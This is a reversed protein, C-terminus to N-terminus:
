RPQNVPKMGRKTLEQQGTGAKEVQVLADMYVSNAPDLRDAERFMKFADEYQGERMKSVGINYHAAAIEKPEKAESIVRSWYAEAQPYLGKTYYDIGAKLYDNGGMLSAGQLKFSWLEKHPSIGEVIDRALAKIQGLIIAEDSDARARAEATSPGTWEQKYTTSFTNGGLTSGRKEVSYTVSVPLSKQLHYMRETTKYKRGNRKKEVQYRTTYEHYNVRGLILTGSLAAEGAQSSVQIYGENALQNRLEEALRAGYPSSAFPKISLSQVTASLDRPPMTVQEQVLKACGALMLAHIMWGTWRIAFSLYIKM